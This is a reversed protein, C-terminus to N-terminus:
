DALARRRRHAGPSSQHRGYVSCLAELVRRVEESALSYHITQGERRGRVLGARRLVALQQSCNAQPLALAACLESVSRERGTMLCLMRLRKESALSRLLEAAEVADQLAQLNVFAFIHICAHIKLRANALVAELGSRSPLSGSSSV